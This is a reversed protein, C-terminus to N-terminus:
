DTYIARYATYFAAMGIPMLVLWGLMFPISAIVALVMMVLSFIFMPLINKLCGTFSMKLSQMLPVGGLSILVPAFWFMMIIPIFLLLAILIGLLTGSNFIQEPSISEPDSFAGIGGMGSFVLAGFVVIFAIIIGLYIAGLGILTGTNSKFGAFLHGVELAEGRELAACGLM